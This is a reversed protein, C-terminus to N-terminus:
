SPLSRTIHIRMKDDGCQDILADNGGILGIRENLRDDFASPCRFVEEELFAVDVLVREVLGDGVRDPGVVDIQGVKDQFVAQAVAHGDTACEQVAGQRYGVVLSRQKDRQTVREIRFINGFKTKGQGLVELDAHGGDSADLLQDLFIVVGGHQGRAGAGLFEFLLQTFERSPHRTIKGLLFLRLVHGLDDVAEDVLANLRLRAIDMEFRELFEHIDAHADVAGQPREEGFRVLLGVVRDGALENRADLDNGIEVDGLAAQGLVAADLAAHHAFTAGEPDIQTHGGQWGLKALTHHQTNKVARGDLEVEVFEAHRLADFFCQPFHDLQGVADDDDGTRGARAFGGREVRAQAFDVLRIGFEEGGLIRHFVVDVSDHLDRDVFADTEIERAAQAGEQPLVGVADENAFRAVQFGRLDGDLGGEGAVQDEGREVGIVRGACDGPKDIHAHFWEENGGRELQDHRLTEDAADARTADLGVLGGLVLQREETKGGM